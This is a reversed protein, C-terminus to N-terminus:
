QAEVHESEKAPEIEDIILRRSSTIYTEHKEGQKLVVPKGARVWEGPVMKQSKPDFLQDQTTVQVHWHSAQPCEIVVHTTM